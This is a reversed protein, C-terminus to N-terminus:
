SLWTHLFLCGMAGGHAFGKYYTPQYGMGYILTTGSSQAIVIGALTSAYILDERAAYAVDSGLETLYPGICHM